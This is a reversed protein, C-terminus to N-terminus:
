RRKAIQTLREFAPNHRKAFGAKAIREAIRAELGKFSALVEFQATYNCNALAMHELLESEIRHGLTMQIDAELRRTSIISAMVHNNRPEFDAWDHESFWPYDEFVSPRGLDEIIIYAGM